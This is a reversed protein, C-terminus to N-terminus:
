RALLGGDVLVVTGHIYDSAASALFVAVGKLDEPMGLRGAPIRALMPEASKPDETLKKNIETKIWGPAIANM